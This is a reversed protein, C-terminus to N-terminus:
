LFLFRCFRTDTVLWLSAKFNQILKFGLDPHESSGVLLEFLISAYLTFNLLWGTQRRDEKRSTLLYECRTHTDREKEREIYLSHTQPFCTPLLGPQSTSRCQRPSSAVDGCGSDLAPSFLQDWSHPSNHGM